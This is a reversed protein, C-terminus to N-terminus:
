CGTISDQAHRGCSRSSAVAMSQSLSQATLRSSSTSPHISGRRLQPKPLSQQGTTRSNLAGLEGGLAVYLLDGQDISAFGAAAYEALGNSSSPLIAIPATYDATSPETAPHYTCQRADARGRNRNPHGYYGGSEILNLEDPAAANTGTDTTCTVSGPGSPDEEAGADAGNDTAYIRGNSHLVLDYPNRLGAAFVSVDGSVLDVDTAYVNDSSFKLKGDFGADLPRAVLLAGSVPM